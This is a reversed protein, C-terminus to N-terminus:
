YIALEIASYDCSVWLNGKGAVFCARTEEDHPLQQMNPYKCESPKLKKEKALDNNTNKSGCSMRSTDAGLQKYETHIRGTRPNIADLHGQGFSSVRKASGSYGPYYNDDGPDGRGFYELLFEDCIGKQKKLQKELVSDKDEGTKKDQITTDFGLAKAFPIVQTSSSWLINCKPTPDFGLWLDGQLNITVFDKFKEPNEQYKRQVFLNLKEISEDLNKKDILMKAKWKDVDLKIGCWEMYAIVPVFNCELEIAKLCDKRKAESVQSLMIKELYTVDGAGYVVVSEDLGRWIIQGRVTKDIDIKLRDWAISKLSYSKVEHPYGLYLIQEAIMTDYVKRPVIGFNYLFSIDFKLNQGVVRKNELIDKFLRIDTTSCDVVIRTDAKDNGFQACLLNCIRPDKGSTETDFQVLTWNKMMELASQEDIVKYLDSEFLQQQKTVLFIAM